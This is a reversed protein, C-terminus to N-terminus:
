VKNPMLIKRLYLDSLDNTSYILLDKMKGIVSLVEKNMKEFYDSIFRRYETNIELNRDVIIEYSAYTTALHYLVNLIIRGRYLEKFEGFYEENAKGTKIANKCSVKCPYFNSTFHSYFFDPLEAEKVKEPNLFCDIAVDFEENRLCELAIKTEHFFGEKKNKVFESICCDPYGLLEGELKNIRTISDILAEENAPINNVLNSNLVNIEIKKISKLKRNVKRVKDECCLYFFVESVLYPKSIRNLIMASPIIEFGTKKLSKYISDSVIRKKVQNEVDNIKKVINGRIKRLSHRATLSAERFFQQLLVCETTKAKIRGAETFLTPSRDFLISFFRRFDGM